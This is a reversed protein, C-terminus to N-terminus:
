GSKVRRSRAFQLPFFEEYLNLLLGRNYCNTRSMAATSSRSLYYRKYRENVTQNTAALLFHYVTFALTIAAFNAVAVLSIVLRPYHTFLIQVFLCFLESCYM